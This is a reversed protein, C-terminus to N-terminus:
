LGSGPPTGILTTRVADASPAALVEARRDRLLVLDAVIGPRIRRPPGGPDDLPALLADLAAAPTLTEGPGLIRGSAATRHVAAAIVAWPDLPGYPADSSLALPVGAAALSRCRYLDAHDRAPIDRAYDDGRDALFGPQTVVRLGLASIDGILERPVLAAHEIRDGPLCGTERLAVLLLLLAERTVAHVAVARGARHATRIRERLDDLAPLGSDALVIKYPGVAPGESVTAGLPVGLLQVRQPLEGSVASGALATLSGPSLDPTADTVATVGLRALDSGLAALPPPGTRPLRERLWTDARWLRGTPAGRADREIGPHTASALSVEQAARSNLIWLAGSRHQVRVPHRAHLGDLAATDLNGAVTEHYGVGRIWGHADPKAAALAATLSARDRVAPPGCAVSRRHAVLAHLHLHHDALGPLLAHGRCDVTEEGPLRALAPAVEAIRGGRVRVDARRGGDLEADRLLVDTVLRLGTM